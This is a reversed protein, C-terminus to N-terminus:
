KKNRILHKTDGSTTRIMSPARVVARIVPM